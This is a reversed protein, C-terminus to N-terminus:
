LRISRGTMLSVFTDEQVHHLSGKNGRQKQKAVWDALIERETMTKTLDPLKSYAEAHKQLPNKFKM